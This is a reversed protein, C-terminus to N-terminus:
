KTLAGLELRPRAATAETVTQGKATIIQVTLKQAKPFAKFLAFDIATLQDPKACAFEYDAHYESHDHDAHAEKAAPVPATADGEKAPAGPKAHDDDDDEGVTVKASVPACQAAASLGFLALPKELTAIAAAQALKAEPTEAKGEFGVIDAGPARLEMVLRKGEVAIDLAGRGHVHAGLERKAQQAAAPAVCLVALAFSATVTVRSMSSM